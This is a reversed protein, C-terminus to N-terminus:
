STMCGWSYADNEDELYARASPADSYLWQCAWTFQAWTIYLGKGPKGCTWHWAASPARVKRTSYANNDRVLMKTQGPLWSVRVPNGPDEKAHPHRALYVANCLFDVDIARSLVHSAPPMAIARSDADPTKVGRPPQETKLGASHGSGQTSPETHASWWAGGFVLFTAVLITYGFSRAADQPYWGSLAYLLLWGGTLMVTVGFIMVVMGQLGVGQGGTAYEFPGSGESYRRIGFALLRKGMLILPVSLLGQVLRWGLSDVSDSRVSNFIATSKPTSTAMRHEVEWSGVPGSSEGVLSSSAERARAERAAVEERVFKSRVELRSAEFDAVYRSDASQKSGGHEPKTQNPM